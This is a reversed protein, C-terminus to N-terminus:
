IKQEASTFITYMDKLRKAMIVIYEVAKEALKSPM